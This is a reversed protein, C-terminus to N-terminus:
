KSWIQAPAVINIGTCNVVSNYVGLRSSGFLNIETQTLAGSNISSNGQIYVSLVNGQADRVYSTTIGGTTKTIRNGAADYTYTTTNGNKTISLIKGYVSWVINTIGAQADGTLNGIADYTYNFAAQNDIDAPYNSSAVADRISSLQNTLHDVGTTPAQGPTYEGIGGGTQVYKYMYTLNDMALNASNATTGNRLLTMINGNPDYSYREQYDQMHTSGTPAFSGNAAWADMSNIRNLQDYRYNYIMATSATLPRLSLAMSGINGNYLNYKSATPLANGQVYGSPANIPTYDTYTGDDYYNLNLKYADREFLPSSGTGDADYLDGGINVSSPNISKLWGQLIYAYDVGQVQLDGLQM